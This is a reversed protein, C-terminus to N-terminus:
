RVKKLKWFCCRAPLLMGPCYRFLVWTVRSKLKQFRIGTGTSKLIQKKMDNTVDASIGQKKMEAWRFILARIINERSGEINGARCTGLYNWLAIHAETFERINEITITQTISGKRKRHYILRQPIIAIRECQEVVHPIVLVDEYIKGEPFRLQDWITKKYVKNWVCVAYKEDSIASFIEEKTMVSKRCPIVKETKGADKMLGETVIVDYGCTVMDADWQILSDIMCEIMEPYFADDPDLFSVFEGTMLNLGINRAASLGRNEQHVVKVRPDSKYEDCITDSGDISGDDVIIIELNSHTQNIVSDLAERLYPQVNYVPIIVSVLPEVYLRGEYAYDREKTIIYSVM